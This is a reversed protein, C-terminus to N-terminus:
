LERGDTNGLEYLEPAEDDLLVGPWAYSGLWDAGGCFMLLSCKSYPPGAMSGANSLTPAGGLVDVGCRGGTLDTVGM